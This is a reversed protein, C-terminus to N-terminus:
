FLRDIGIQVIVNNNQTVVTQQRQMSQILRLIKVKPTRQLEEQLAQKIQLLTQPSTSAYM